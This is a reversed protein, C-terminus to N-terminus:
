APIFQWLEHWVPFSFAYHQLRYKGGWQRLKNNHPHQEDKHKGKRDGPHGARDNHFLAAPTQVEEYDALKNDDRNKNHTRDEGELLDGVEVIDECGYEGTRTYSGQTDRQSGLLRQTINDAPHRNRGGLRELDAIPNPQYVPVDGAIYLVDGQPVRHHAGEHVAPYDDWVRDDVAIHYLVRM